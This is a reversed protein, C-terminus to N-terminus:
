VKGCINTSVVLNPFTPCRSFFMMPSCRYRGSSPRGPEFRLSLLTWDQAPDAPISVKHSFELHFLYISFSVSYDLCCKLLIWRKKQFAPLTLVDIREFVMHCNVFLCNNQRPPVSNLTDEFAFNFFLPEGSGIDMVDQYTTWGWELGVPFHGLEKSIM